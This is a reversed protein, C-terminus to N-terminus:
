QAMFSLKGLNHHAANSGYNRRLPFYVRGHLITHFLDTEMSVLPKGDAEISVPSTKSCCPFLHIETHKFFFGKIFSQQCFLMPDAAHCTNLPLGKIFFSYFSLYYKDSKITCLWESIEKFEDYILLSLTWINKWSNLPSTQNWVYTCWFNTKRLMTEFCRTNRGAACIYLFPFHSNM